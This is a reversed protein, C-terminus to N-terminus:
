DARSWAYAAIVRPDAASAEPVGADERDETARPMSPRARDSEPLKGADIKVQVAATALKPRDVRFGGERTRDVWEGERVLKFRALVADLQERSTDLGKNKKANRIQSSENTALTKAGFLAMLMRELENAEDWM